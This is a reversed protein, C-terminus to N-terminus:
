ASVAAEFLLPFYTVISTRSPKALDAYSCIIIDIHIFYFTLWWIIYGKCISSFLPHESLSTHTVTPVSLRGIMVSEDIRLIGAFSDPNCGQLNHSPHYQVTRLPRSGKGFYPAKPMVDKQTYPRGM